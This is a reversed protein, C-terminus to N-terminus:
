GLQPVLSATGLRLPVLKLAGAAREFRLEPLAPPGACSGM